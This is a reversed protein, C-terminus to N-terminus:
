NHMHLIWALTTWPFLHQIINIIQKSFYALCEALLPSLSVWTHSESDDGPENPTAVAPTSEVKAPHMHQLPNSQFRPKFGMSDSTAKHEEKANAQGQSRRRSLPKLANQISKSISRSMKKKRKVETVAM